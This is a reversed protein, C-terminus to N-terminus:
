GLGVMYTVALPYRVQAAGTRAYCNIEYAMRVPQPALQTFPMAQMLNLIKPDKKYVCVVGKV